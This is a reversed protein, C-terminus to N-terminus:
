STRPKRIFVLRGEAHLRSNGPELIAKGSEVRGIVGFEATGGPMIVCLEGPEDLSARSRCEWKGKTQVLWGFPKVDSEAAATALRRRREVATKLLPELAPLKPCL